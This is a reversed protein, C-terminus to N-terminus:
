KIDRSDRSLILGHKTTRLLGLLRQNYYLYKKASMAFIKKRLFSLFCFIILDSSHIKSISFIDDFTDNMSTPPVKHAM